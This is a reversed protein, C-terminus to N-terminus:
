QEYEPADDPVAATPPLMVNDFIHVPRLRDQFTGDGISGLFNSGWAWLSGDAQLALAFQAGDPPHLRDRCISPIFEYGSSVAVVNEMIRVPNSRNTRTGDGVLGNRNDGWAYLDGNSRVAMFTIQTKDCVAIVDDMIWEPEGDGIAWLSGDTKIVMTLGSSVSKVDEMIQVPRPATRSWQWLSGDTRVAMTKRDYRSASITAVQSVDGMVRTLPRTATRFDLFYYRWLSGDSRIIYATNYMRANRDAVDEMLPVWQSRQRNRGDTTWRQRVLIGGDRSSFGTIYACVSVYVVDDLINIWENRDTDSDWKLRWLSGDYRIAMTGLGSSLSVMGDYVDMVRRPISRYAREGRVNTVGGWAYLEGDASIIINGNRGDGANITNIRINPANDALLKVSPALSFLLGLTLAAALFNKYFRM